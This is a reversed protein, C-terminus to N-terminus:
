ISDPEYELQPIRAYTCGDTICVYKSNLLENYIIQFKNIAINRWSVKKKNKMIKLNNGIIHTNNYTEKLINYSEQDDCYVKLLKHLGIKNLSELCNKTIDLYRINTLTIFSFLNM